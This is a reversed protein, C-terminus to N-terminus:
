VGTSPESEAARSPENKVGMKEYMTEIRKASAEHLNILEFCVACLSAVVQEFGIRNGGTALVEKPSMQLTQIVKNPTVTQVSRKRNWDFESM